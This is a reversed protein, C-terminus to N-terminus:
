DSRYDFSAAFGCRREFAFDFGGGGVQLVDMIVEYGSRDHGPVGCRVTSDTGYRAAARAEVHGRVQIRQQGPKHDIEVEAPEVFLVESIAGTYQRAPTGGHQGTVIGALLERHLDPADEDVYVGVRWPAGREDEDWYGVMVVQRGSLDIEGYQGEAVTWSIAFQCYRYTARSGPKGDVSRCPCIAECNCSEFYPGAIRWSTSM